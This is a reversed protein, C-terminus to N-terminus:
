LMEPPRLPLSAYVTIDNVSTMLESTETAIIVDALIDTPYFVSGMNLVLWQINKESFYQSVYYLKASIDGATHKTWHAPTTEKWTYISNNGHGFRMKNQRLM